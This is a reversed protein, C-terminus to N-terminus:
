VRLEYEHVYGVDRSGIVVEIRAGNKLGNAQFARRVETEWSGTPYEERQSLWKVHGVGNEIYASWEKARLGDEFCSENICMENFAPYPAGRYEPGSIDITVTKAKKSSKKKSM